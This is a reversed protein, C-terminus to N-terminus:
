PAIIGSVDNGVSTVNSFGDVITGIDFAFGAGTSNRLITNSVALRSPFTSNASSDLAGNSSGGGAYEVVVHDLVNNISPSFSLELGEWFGPTMQSGTFTIPAVATGVARLSGSDNVRVFGLSDFILTNGAAIEFPADLASLMLRMAPLNSQHQLPGPLSLRLGVWVITVRPSLIASAVSFPVMILISGM